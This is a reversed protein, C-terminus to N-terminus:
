PTLVYTGGYKSHLEGYLFVRYKARTIAVYLLRAATDPNRCSSLDGLDVFVNDYTSGQAKHVTAADKPRLDLYENKLMFYMPWNKISAFYKILAYFHEKNAPLHVYDHSHPTSVDAGMVELFVGECIEHQEPADVGHIYVEDEVSVHLDGDNCATNAILHEGAVYPATIGRAHRIHDNFAIARNNTYTLIRNNHDPDMMYTTLKEQISDDTLLEITGGLPIPQFLKSEVTNRLQAHLALLYNDKTRMQETLHYTPIPLQLLPCIAETVSTLQCHDGVYVIKCNHLGEHIYKLLNRDVMFAEDIFIIKNSHVRWSKSKTLRTTGNAYDEQVKLGLFSHITSTPKKTALGLVEAAKNTTATMHVESYKPPIGMLKCTKHYMPIVTDILHGMWFTKGVGAPGSVIIKKMSDDLLMQFFADAAAQQGQTLDM